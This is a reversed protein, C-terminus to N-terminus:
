KGIKKLKLWQQYAYELIRGRDARTIATLKIGTDFNKKDAGRGKSTWVVTGQAFVPFADGPIDFQMKLMDNKDLKNEAAFSTGERSINCTRSRGEAKNKESTYKVALPTDFRFFKRRDEM